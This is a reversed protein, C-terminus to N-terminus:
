AQVQPPQPVVVFTLEPVRKRTIASAIESRLWGAARELAEDAARPTTTSRRPLSVLVALRSADPAPNVELISLELLENEFSSALAQALAHEVQRCLQKTKQSRRARGAANGGPEIENPNVLHEQQARSELEDFFL